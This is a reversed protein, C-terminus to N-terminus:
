VYYTNLLDIFLQQILNLKRSPSSFLKPREQTPPFGRSLDDGLSLFGCRGVEQSSVADGGKGNDSGKDGPQGSSSHRICFHFAQHVTLPEETVAGM